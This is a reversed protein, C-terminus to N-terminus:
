KQKQLPSLFVNRFEIDKGESQLSISGTSVSTNTAKNLLIGNVYVEITNGSCVVEMMNWSGVSMEASPGMKKVLASSKDTHEDMDAGNMCVFDGANGAQLQCEICEPWIADPSQVHVFVGSNTAEAPWRWEVHLRYNSYTGKTRMYGYPSGTIHIIGNEATFVKVPDVKNDKLFFVWNSLDKGNFLLVKEVDGKMGKGPKKENTQGHTLLSTMLLAAIITACSKNRMSETM